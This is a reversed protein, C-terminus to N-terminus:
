RRSNGAACEHTWCLPTSNYRSLKTECGYTACVRGEGYSGLHGRGTRRRTGASPEPSSVSAIYM